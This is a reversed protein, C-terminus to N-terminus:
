IIINSSSHDLNLVQHVLWQLNCPYTPQNVSRSNEEPTLCIKKLHTEHHYCKSNFSLFEGLPCIYIGTFSKIVLIDLPGDVITIYHLELVDHDTIERFGTYRSYARAGLNEM